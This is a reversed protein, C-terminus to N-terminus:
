SGIFFEELKLPFNTSYLGRDVVKMCFWETPGNKCGQASAIFDCMRLLNVGQMECKVLLLRISKTPLTHCQLTQRLM